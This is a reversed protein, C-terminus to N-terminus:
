RRASKKNAKSSCWRGPNVPKGNHRIEFYVGPQSNGGSNGATAIVEGAEIWDGPEKLLSQNFGYLSMYNDGHDIITLLGYGQLWDSFAIQGHSIAVVEAGEGANIVVGKWKLKGTHRSTGFRKRIKGQAPWQLQGKQKAFNTFKEANDPIDPLAHQLKTVLNQLRKEDAHMKELKQNKTKIERNLKALVTKRDTRSKELKSIEKSRLAKTTELERKKTKISQQLRKVETIKEKVGHINNARVKIFYDYYTLVRGISGPDQQNLLLKLYDQNGITYATRVQQKLTDRNAFLELRLQKERRTQRSLKNKHKKIQRNLKKVQRAMVGIVKEHDRLERRLKNKNDRAKELENQLARIIERVKKLEKTRQQNEPASQPEYANIDDLDAYAPMAVILNCLLATLFAPMAHRTLSCSSALAKIILIPRKIIFVASFIGASGSNQTAM